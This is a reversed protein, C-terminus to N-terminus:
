GRLTFHTLHVLDHWNQSDEVKLDTGHAANYFRMWGATFDAVVGDLDIGLRM